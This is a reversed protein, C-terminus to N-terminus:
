IFTALRSVVPGLTWPSELRIWEKLGPGPCVLVVM